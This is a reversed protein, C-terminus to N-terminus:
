QELQSLTLSSIYGVSFLRSGHMCGLLALYALPPFVMCLLLLLNTIAAPATCRPSTTTKMVQLSFLRHFRSYLPWSRVHPERECRNRHTPENTYHLCGTQLLELSRSPM